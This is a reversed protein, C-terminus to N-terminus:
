PQNADRVPIRVDVRTGTPEIRMFSITGDVQRLRERMSLLGLGRRTRAIKPDFGTGSDSIQLKLESATKTIEVRASEAGSHKIVNRLAEQAIRYLCLAVDGPLSRPIGHHVFEIHIGHQDSIEKCLSRTAAVLGVHDLISPHLRHSLNHLGSSLEKTRRLLSALGDVLHEQSDPPADHLRELDVALLALRQNFDDHIERAIRSREEEQATILRASLDQLSEEVQKRETIDILFGRLIVPAGDQRVVNVIDHLWVSRGDAATMRYEFEYNDNQYLNSQCYDLAWARDKPHLHDVWFDKKLWHEHPYGLFEVVQPGIYSFTFTKADAEWPIANTTELLLRLREKHDLLILEVKKRETIDRIVATVFMDDTTQMPSLSIEVPVESGDKCRASLELDSGMPRVQPNGLYDDRHHVHRGRLHEPLLIEVSQGILEESGYGFVHAVQRNVVVIKGDRDVVVVPDPAAILLTKFFDQAKERTAIERRLERNVQSIERTREEVRRELEGRARDLAEEAQKRATVDQVICAVALVEGAESKIAYYHHQFSKILGPYAPTEADVAGGVLPEGTELVQRLQAEVGAAVDPIIEHISRGLHEEVSIGNIAALHNNIFAFKLNSDFCCFGVPAQSFMGILEVLNPEGLKGHM